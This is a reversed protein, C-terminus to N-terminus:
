SWGMVDDVILFTLSALCPDLPDYQTEDIVRSREM